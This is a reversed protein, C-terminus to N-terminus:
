LVKAIVLGLVLGIGLGGLFTMLLLSKGTGATKAEAKKESPVTARTAVPQPAVKTQRSTRVLPKAQYGHFWGGKVTPDSVATGPERANIAAMEESEAEAAASALADDMDTSLAEVARDIIEVSIRETDRRMYDRNISRRGAMPAVPTINLDGGIEPDVRFPVSGIHIVDGINIPKRGVVLVGQMATGNASGVDEVFFGEPGNFLKAHRRSVSPDEVHVYAQDGRGVTFEGPPLPM